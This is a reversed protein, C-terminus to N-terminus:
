DRQSIKLVRRLEDVRTISERCEECILLHEEIRTLQSEDVIQGLAYRDLLHEDPHNMLRSPGRSMAVSGRGELHISSGM